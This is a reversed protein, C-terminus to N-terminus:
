RGRGLAGEAEEIMPGVVGGGLGAKERDLVVVVLLLSSNSNGSLAPDLVVGGEGVLWSCPRVLVFLKLLDVPDSSSLRNWSLFFVECSSSRWRGEEGVAVEFAGEM